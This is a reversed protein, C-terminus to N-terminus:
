LNIWIAPRVATDIHDVYCDGISGDALVYLALKETDGPSRLWWSCKGGLPNVGQAEAYATSECRRDDDSHFHEQVEEISLCFPSGDIRAREEGAFATTMFDGELWAKLGSSEWDNGKYFEAFPESELGYKSVLLMRNGEIALVIWGIPEFGNESRGDQEYSGFLVSGGVQPNELSRAAITSALEASDQYDGLDQFGQLATAYDGSEMKVVAADYAAAREQEPIVIQTVVLVAAVIAVVVGAVIPGLKRAKKKAREASEARAEKRKKDRERKKEQAEKAVADAREKDTMFDPEFERICEACESESKTDPVSKYLEAASKWASLMTERPKEREGLEGDFSKRVADGFAKLMSACFSKTTGFKADADLAEGAGAIIGTVGGGLAMGAAGQKRVSKMHAAAAQFMANLGALDSEIEELAADQEGPTYEDHLIEIVTPLVGCMKQANMDIEGIKCQMFRLYATNFVAEWSDPNKGLIEDYYGQAGDYNELSKARRAAKYLRQLEEAHDISVKALSDVGSEYKTGCAQCIYVGDHKELEISGCKECQIAKM